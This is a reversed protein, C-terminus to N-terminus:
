ERSLYSNVYEVFDFNQLYSRFSEFQAEYNDATLPSKGSVIQHLMDSAIEPSYHYTDRYNDMATIVDTDWLFSYIKVNDYALLASVVTKVSDLMPNLRGDLSKEYWTLVSYPPIYFIFETDPHKEILPLVNYKLNEETNVLYSSTDVQPLATRLSFDRLVTDASYVYAAPHRQRLPQQTGHLTEILNAPIHHYFVDLNLLYPVDRSLGETYLFEPLSANCQQWPSIGSFIDLSIIVRDLPQEEFCIDLIRKDNRFTASNYALTLSSTDFLEDVEDNDFNLSMSSGTIVTSYSYQRALGPNSYLQNYTWFSFLSNDRRFVMLPDTIYMAAAFLLLIVGSVLLSTFFWKKANM